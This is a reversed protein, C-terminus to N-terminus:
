GHDVGKTQDAPSTCLEIVHGDPDTLFVQIAGDPRRKADDVLTIGRAKLLEAAATADDVEFAFHHNRSSKKLVHDPYGAPGSRDHEQILHVLTSGAQFWAGEFDFAPRNVERMGLLGVYFDRAAAVSKVILTVHDIYRVQLPASDSM